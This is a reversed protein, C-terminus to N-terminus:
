APPGISINAESEVSTPESSTSTDGTEPYDPLPWSDNRNLEADWIAQKDVDVGDNRLWLIILGVAIWFIGLYIYGLISAGAEFYLPLFTGMFALAIMIKVKRSRRRGACKQHEQYEISDDECARAKPWLADKITGM